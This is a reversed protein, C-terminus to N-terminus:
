NSSWFGIWSIPFRWMKINVIMSIYQLVDLGSQLSGYAIRVVHQKRFTHMLM